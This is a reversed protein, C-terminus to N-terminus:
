RALFVRHSVSFRLLAANACCRAEHSVMAVFADKARSSRHAPSAFACCDSHRLAACRLARRAAEALVRAQAEAERACGDEVRRKLEQLQAVNARLRAAVRQSRRRDFGEYWCFLLACALVSALIGLANDRPKTSVYRARLQATPYLAVSWNAGALGVDLRRGSARLGPTVLSAHADHAGISVVQLGSIRFTYAGGSPARVVAVVGDIFRPLADQLVSEWHFALACVARGADDADNTDEGATDDPPLPPPTVGVGYSANAADAARRPLFVPAFVIASPQLGSATGSASPQELSEPPAFLRPLFETAAPARAALARQLAAARQPESLANL